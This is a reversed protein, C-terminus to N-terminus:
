RPPLWQNTQYAPPMLLGLAGTAASSNGAIGRPHASYRRPRGHQQAQAHRDGGVQQGEEMADCRRRDGAVQLDAKRDAARLEARQGRGIEVDIGQHLYGGPNQGVGQPRAADEEPAPQHGAHRALLTAEDAVEVDVTYVLVIASRKRADYGRKFVTMARLDADAIGVRALAAARLAPEAHDLPLRIETLRIM